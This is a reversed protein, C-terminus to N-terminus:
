DIKIVAIDTNPDTGVLTATYTRNDHLTVEIEDAGAIVHNNTVLYGNDSIIVGSGSSQEPRQQGRRERPDGFFDRFMDDYPSRDQNTRASTSITSKIHVVGPTVLEAAYVFNLGEPVIYSSDNLYNSFKVNNNQPSQIYSPIEKEFLKYGGLAVIGGFISAFILRFLLQRKNM